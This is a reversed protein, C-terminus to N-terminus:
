SEHLVGEALTLIHSAAFPQDDHSSYILIRERSMAHLVERVGERTLPDLARLPEDLLIVKPKHLTCLCLSLVQKMGSSCHLFPTKLAEQFCAVAGFSQLQASVELHSLGRLAGFTFLNEAGSLRPFMGGEIGPCFGIHELAQPSDRVISLAEGAIDLRADGGSPLIWTALTKLLTSKGSGNAGHLLYPQGTSFSFSL